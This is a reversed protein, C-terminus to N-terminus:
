KKKKKTTTGGPAAAGGGGQSAASGASGQTQALAPKSYITLLLPAGVLAAKLIFDRRSSGAVPDGNPRHTEASGESAKAGTVSDNGDTM